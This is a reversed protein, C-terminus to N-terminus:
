ILIIKVKFFLTLRSLYEFLKQQLPNISILKSLSVQSCLGGACYPCGLQSVVQEATWFFSTSTGSRSWLFAWLSEARASCLVGPPLSQELLLNKAEPSSKEMFLLSATEFEFEFEFSFFFASRMSRLLITLLLSIKVQIWSLATSWLLDIAYRPFSIVTEHM